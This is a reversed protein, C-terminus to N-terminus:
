EFLKALSRLVDLFINAERSRLIHFPQGPDGVFPRLVWGMQAGVLAYVVLWVLFVSRARPVASGAETQGGGSAGLRPPPTAADTSPVPAEGGNERARLARVLYGIGLFGAIAFFAVNLLKMFAYSTTSLTFFGTIPGFAALVCLNVTLAALLLQLLGLFGLRSGLLASFVYLSPFTVVLTFLFVMPVKLTTAILQPWCPPTRTLVAYLGMFIGYSAGLILSAMIWTRLRLREQARDAPQAGALDGRLLTDLERFWSTSPKM